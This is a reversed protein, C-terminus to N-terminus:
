ASASSPWLMLIELSSRRFVLYRRLVLAGIVVWCAGEFLNFAHYPISFWPDGAQPYRWWVKFWLLEAVKAAVTALGGADVRAMPPTSSTRGDPSFALNDILHNEEKGLPKAPGGQGRVSYLSTGKAQGAFVCLRTEASYIPHRPKIDPGNARRWLVEKVRPRSPDSVDILAVQDGEEAAGIGVVM